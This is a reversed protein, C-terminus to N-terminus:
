VIRNVITQVAVKVSTLTQFYFLLALTARSQEGSNKLHGYGIKKKKKSKSFFKCSNRYTQLTYTAGM